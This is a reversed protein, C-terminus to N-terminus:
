LGTVAGFLRLRNDAAPFAVAPLPRRWIQLSIWRGTALRQQREAYIDFDGRPSFQCFSWYRWWEARTM